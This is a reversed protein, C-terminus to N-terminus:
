GNLDGKFNANIRLLMGLFSGVGMLMLNRLRSSVVPTDPTSYALLLSMLVGNARVVESFFFRGM